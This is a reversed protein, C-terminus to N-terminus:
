RNRNGGVATDVLDIESCKLRQLKGEDDATWEELLYENVYRRIRSQASPGLGDFQKKILELIKEASKGGKGKMLEQQYIKTARKMAASVHWEKRKINANDKAKGTATLRIQDLQQKFSM